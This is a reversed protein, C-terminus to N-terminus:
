GFAADTLENLLQLHSLEYARTRSMSRTLHVALADSLWDVLQAKTIQPGIAALTKYIDRHASLEDREWDSLICDLLGSDLFVVRAAFDANVAAGNWPSPFSPRPGSIAALPQWRLRTNAVIAICMVGNYLNV